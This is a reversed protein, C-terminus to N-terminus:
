KLAEQLFGLSNNRIKQLNDEVVRWEIPNDVKLVDGQYIHERPIGLVNFLSDIRNNRGGKAGIAFRYFTMFKKHFQISFASCHFSDTLVYEADRIYKVFDNVLVYNKICTICFRDIRPLHQLILYYLVLALYRKTQM